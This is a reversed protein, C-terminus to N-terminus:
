KIYWIQHGTDYVREFVSNSKIANYGIEDPHAFRKLEAELKKNYLIYDTKNISSYFYLNDRPNIYQINNSSQMLYGGDIGNTILQENHGKNVNEAFFTYGYIDVDAIYHTNEYNMRILNAPFLLSIVLLIIFIIKSYKQNFISSKIQGAVPISSVQLGRTGLVQTFAGFLFHIGGVIFLCADLLDVKRQKIAMMVSTLLISWLMLVNFQAIHQITSDLVSPIELTLSNTAYKIMETHALEDQTNTAAYGHLLNIISRFYKSSLYMMHAGQITILLVLSKPYENSHLIKASLALISVLIIVWISVFAHTFVLSTFLIIFLLRSRLDAKLLNILTFLIALAFTQPVPQWNIFIYFAMFYILVSIAPKDNRKDYYAFLNSASVIIICLMTIKLLNNLPIDILEHLITIFILSGPWQYYSKASIDNFDNSFTYQLLGSFGGAADSGESWYFFSPSSFLFVFFITLILLLFRNTSTHAISMITFFSISLGVWLFPHIGTITKNTDGLTVPYSKSYSVLILSIAIFILITYIKDSKNLFDGLM